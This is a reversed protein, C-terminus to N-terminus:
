PSTISVGAYFRTWLADEQWGHVTARQLINMTNFYLPAVPVEDTVIAETQALLKLRTAADATLDANALLRDYAANQWHSYNNAAGARLDDLQNAPDAVDPIAAIFGIDFHGAQLSQVHVKADRTRIRVTIGLQDKWMAQVAELVPTQTWGTLDLIPFGAGGPFGGAALLARAAAADEPLSRLSHFGGLGDPVFHRAPLQGGGLVHAAIAARDLAASLAQRVRPDNLPPRQTNFALFRTEYLPIQRLPSPRMAAYVAIKSFPVAMTIDIQGARFAREEADGNDFALFQIEDLLIHAANWYAPRRQVTIRQNPSWERLTFPGNGVFNEPQTWARGLRAVVRPNVPIWPGSAVYVPFQPAPHVLTVRLTLPDPAAFGVRAFDTLRGRYYDEAGRVLFFLPAKPAATAPNLVRRYSAIFDAATLPEHNSWYLDPRLHFTYTLGDASVDWSQAAAPRPTGGDPAPALLGESLARIIFFEDPLTATAPDLDGPENRQSLRLVAGSDGAGERACGTM